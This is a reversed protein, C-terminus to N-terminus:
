LTRIIRNVGSLELVLLNKIIIKICFTINEFSTDTNLVRVELTKVTFTTTKVSSPPLRQTLSWKIQKSNYNKQVLLFHCDIIEALTMKTCNHTRLLPHNGIIEFGSTVEFFFIYSQIQM